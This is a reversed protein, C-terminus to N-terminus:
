DLTLGCDHTLWHAYARRIAQMREAYNTIHSFRTM